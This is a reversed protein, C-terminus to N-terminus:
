EIRNRGSNKAVYLQKDAEIVIANEDQHSPNATAVGISVTFVGAIPHPKAEIAARLKEAALKAQEHNTSPLVVLFEEGGFRGILDNERLSAKLTHSLLQLVEDGVKHGYTDNVKKFFDIDLMLVSYINGYRKMSVYENRLKEDIVVRNALGTLIDIRSLVTLAENAKILGETQAYIKKDVQLNIEAIEHEFKKRELIDLMVFDLRDIKGNTGFHPRGISSVWHISGDPWYVRFESKFDKHRIFSNLRTKNVWDRDEPIIKNVFETYTLAQTQHALGYYDSCIESLLVTDELVDWRWFGVRADQIALKIIDNGKYPVENLLSKDFAIAKMSFDRMSKIIFGFIISTVVFVGVSLFLAQNPALLPNILFLYYYVAVASIIISFLGPGTGCIFFCLAVAPYFTVFQSGPDNPFIFYRLGFAILVIFLAILYRLPASISENLKLFDSMNM